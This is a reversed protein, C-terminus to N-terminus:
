LDYKRKVKRVRDIDSKSMSFNRTIIVNFIAQKREQTLQHDIQEIL